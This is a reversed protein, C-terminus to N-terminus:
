NQPDEVAADAGADADADADADNKKIGESSDTIPGGNFIDALNKQVDVDGLTAKSSLTVFPSKDRIQSITVADEPSIAVTYLAPVGQSAPVGEAEEGVTEETGGALLDASVSVDLVYVRSLVIKSVRAGEDGSSESLAIVDIYDGPRVKGGVANDATVTFSAAVFNDPLNETLRTAPGSNSGSVVDGRQLAIKAFVQNDRLYVPDYANGPQGGDSVTVPLLMEPTIEARASVNQGLVYYTTQATLGGLLAMVGFMAALAFAVAVFWIAKGPGFVAFISKKESHSANSM